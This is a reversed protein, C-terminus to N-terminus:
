LRKQFIYFATEKFTLLRDVLFVHYWDTTTKQICRFAVNIQLMDRDIIVMSKFFLISFLSFKVLHPLRFIILHSLRINLLWLTPNGRPASEFGQNNM